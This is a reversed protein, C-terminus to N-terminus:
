WDGSAGGGGFGGGGGGFGGGSSGGGFGGGGGPFFIPASRGGQRNSWSSPSSAAGKRMAGLVSAVIFTLVFAGGFAMLPPVITGGALFAAGGGTLLSGLFRGFIMSVVVGMFAAMIILGLSDDGTDHSGTAGSGQPQADPLGAGDILAAIKDVAATVGGSFDGTRFRPAMQEAVIRKAYADPISGELGYGVEIRMKRDDKAVLILVGDDVKKGQVSARGLKWAEVVRLSYQEIAEPQTTPVLLVAVQSGKSQEIAALKAELNSKDAASLTGTLDTVRANLKPVAQLPQALANFSVLWLCFAFFGAVGSISRGAKLFGALAMRNSQRQSPM